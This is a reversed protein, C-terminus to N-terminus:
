VLEFAFNCYPLIRFKSLIARTCEAFHVIAPLAAFLPPIEM